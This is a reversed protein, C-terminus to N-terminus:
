GQLPGLQPMNTPPTAEEEKYAGRLVGLGWLQQQIITMTTPSVALLVAVVVRM